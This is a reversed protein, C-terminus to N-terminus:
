VEQSQKLIKWFDHYKKVRTVSKTDKVKRFHLCEKSNAGDPYYYNHKKQHHKM